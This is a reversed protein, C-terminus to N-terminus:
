MSICAWFGALHSSSPVPRELEPFFACLCLQHHHSSVLSSSEMWSFQGIPSISETQLAEVVLHWLRWFCADPAVSRIFGLPWSLPLGLPRYPRNYGGPMRHRWFSGHLRCYLLVSRRRSIGILWTDPLQLHIILMLLRQHTRCCALAQGVDNEGLAYIFEHTM